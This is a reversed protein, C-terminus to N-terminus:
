TTGSASNGTVAVIGCSSSSWVEDLQCRRHVMQWDSTASGIHIPVGSCASRLSRYLSLVAHSNLVVFSIVGTPLGICPTVRAGERLALGSPQLQMVHYMGVVNVVGAHM